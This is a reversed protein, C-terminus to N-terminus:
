KLADTLRFCETSDKLDQIRKTRSALLQLMGHPVNDNDDSQQLNAGEVDAEVDAGVPDTPETTEPLMNHAPNYRTRVDGMVRENVNMNHLLLVTYVRSAIKNLDELEIPHALFKWQIKMVGFLREVDKRVCEQWMAFHKEQPTVPHSISRIFRSYAPYIGDALLYLSDFEQTGITFPVVDASKELQKFEGNVFSEILPSEEMVNLDNMSGACGYAFHWAWLHHDSLAELILSPSGNHSNKYSSQWSVPCSRWNTHTCDFSGFMGPVGYIEKHYRVVNRLDEADPFRLFESKFLTIMVADFQDCCAHAFSKSVGFYATFSSPPAGMALAKLPLLIRAENSIRPGAFNSVYYPNGSNMIQQYIYEFTSLSVRFQEKFESGHLPNPGLFEEYLRERSRTHNFKRRSARRGTHDGNSRDHNTAAAILATSSPLIPVAAAAQVITAAALIDYDDSTGMMIDHLTQDLDM